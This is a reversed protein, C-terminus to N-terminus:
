KQSKGLVRLFYSIEDSGHANNVSCSYNGQHQRQIDSIHLSGNSQLHFPDGMIPKGETGFWTREPPPIGIAICPLLVSGRRRVSITEGFSIIGAAVTTFFHEKFTVKLLVFFSFVKRIYYSIV